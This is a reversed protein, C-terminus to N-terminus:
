KEEKEQKPLEAKLKQILNDPISAEIMVHDAGHTVSIGGLLEGLEPKDEPIMMAAMAKLGTLMEATQKNGDPNDNEAKIKVAIQANKHDFNLIIAKMGELPKLQPNGEAAKAMEDQPILMAGWLMTNKDVRDLVAAVAQNKYVNDKTKMMVDICAKVGPTSGAVINSTDLFAFAEEDQKDTDEEKKKSSYITLGNYDETLFDGEAKEEMFALVKAKDYRLNIVAAGQQNGGLGGSLVGIAAYFIDEKLDIGTKNVFELFKESNEEDEILKSAVDTSMARHVDIFFVGQAEVPLYKLVDEPKASGAQATDKPGCAVTGLLALGIILSYVTFKKM